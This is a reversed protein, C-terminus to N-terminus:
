IVIFKWRPFINCHSCALLSEFINPFSFEHHKMIGSLINFLHYWKDFNLIYVNFPDMTKIKKTDGNVLMKIPIRM